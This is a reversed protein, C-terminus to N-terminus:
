NFIFDKITRLMTVMEKMEEISYSYANIVFYNGNKEFFILPHLTNSEVERLSYTEKSYFKGKAGIFYKTDEDVVTITTRKEGNFLVKKLPLKKTELFNELLEIVDYKFRHCSFWFENFDFEAQYGGISIHYQFIRNNKPIDLTRGSYHGHSFITLKEFTEKKVTIKM